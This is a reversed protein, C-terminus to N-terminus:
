TWAAIENRQGRNYDQGIPSRTNKRDWAAIKKPGKRDYNQGITSRTNKKRDWFIQLAEIMKKKASTDM